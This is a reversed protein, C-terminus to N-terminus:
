LIFDIHVNFVLESELISKPFEKFPASKRVANLAADDLADYNSSRLIILKSMSGDNLIVFGVTVRGESRRRKERPPYYKNKEIATLVRVQYSEVSKESRSSKEQNIDDDSLVAEEVEPEEILIANEQSTLKPKLEQTKKRKILEIRFDNSKQYSISDPSFTVFNDNYKKFLLSVSHFLIIVVIGILLRRWRSNM